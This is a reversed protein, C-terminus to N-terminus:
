STQEAVLCGAAVDDLGAVRGVAFAACRDHNHYIRVYRWVVVVSGASGPM